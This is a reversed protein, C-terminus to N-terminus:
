QHNEYIIKKTRKYIILALGLKLLDPLIFPLITTSILSLIGKLNFLELYYSMWGLGCLYCLILGILLAIIEYIEIDKNTKKKKFFIEFIIFLIGMLEFGVLYGGSPGLLHSLGAQFGSFVPLGIFGLLLYLTIALTGRKGKLFLLSFFVGFTQLTFPIAFPITAWSCLVMMSVCIPILTIDLIKQKNTFSNKRM